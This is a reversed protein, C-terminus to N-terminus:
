QRGVKRGGGQPFLCHKVCVWDLEFLKEKKKIVSWIGNQRLTDWGREATDHTESPTGGLPKCGASPGPQLCAEGEGHPSESIVWDPFMLGECARGKPGRLLILLARVTLTPVLTGSLQEM